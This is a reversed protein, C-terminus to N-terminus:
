QEKNTIDLYISFIRRFADIGKSITPGSAHISFLPESVLWYDGEYVVNVVLPKALRREGTLSGQLTMTGSRSANDWNQTSWLVTNGINKAIYSWFEIGKDGLQHPRQLVDDGRQVRRSAVLIRRPSQKRTLM